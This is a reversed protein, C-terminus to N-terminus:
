EPVFFTFAMKGDRGTRLNFLGGAREHGYFVRFTTKYDRYHVKSVERFLADSEVLFALRERAYHFVKLEADTTEIGSRDEAAKEPTGPAPEPEKEIRVLKKDALGVRALIKQDIFAKFAETVLDRYADVMKRSIRGGLNGDSLFLRVFEDSPSRAQAELREVINSLILKRKAEAGVNEPDFMGKRMAAVGELMRDDIKGEAVSRLDLSLFATEDMMNPADSDAYFEYRLGDTLVGLKVSSAANFYSRLQGRDDILPAGVKKCEIAM